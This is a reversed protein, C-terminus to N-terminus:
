YFENNHGKVHIVARFKALCLTTFVKYNKAIERKKRHKLSADKFHMSVVCAHARIINFTLVCLGVTNEIECSEKRCTILGALNVTVISEKDEEKKENSLYGCETFHIYIVTAKIVKEYM